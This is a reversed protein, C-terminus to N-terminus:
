GIAGEKNEDGVADADEKSLGFSKTDLKVCDWGTKGPCGMTKNWPYGCHYESKM